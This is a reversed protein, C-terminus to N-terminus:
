RSSSWRRFRLAVGILYPLVQAQGLPDTMGNHSFYLVRVRWVARSRKTYEVLSRDMTLSSRSLGAKVCFNIMPRLHTQVVVEYAHLVSKDPSSM